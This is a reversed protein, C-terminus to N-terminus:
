RKAYDAKASEVADLLGALFTKNPPIHLEKVKQKQLIELEAVLTRMMDKEHRNLNYLQRDIHGTVIDRPPPDESEEAMKRYAQAAKAAKSDTQTKAAEAVKKQPEESSKFDDMINPASVLEDLFNKMTSVSVVMVDKGFVTSEEDDRHQQRQRAKRRDRSREGMDRQADSEHVPMFNNKFISELQSFMTM